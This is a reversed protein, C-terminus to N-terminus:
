KICIANPPSAVGQYKNLPASTFFYEYVGDRASDDALAELYFLEGIIMGFGGLFQSHCSDNDDLFPVAEFAINDSAVAAFKKEWVWRYTEECAKVGICEPNPTHQQCLQEGALKECAVTLGTRLMLIDGEQFIVNQDKAVRELEDVTINYRKFPNLEQGRQKAWWRAYDLLVARGAIGREAMHHVGLRDTADAGPEIDSFNVNNYFQKSKWHCCHRLGDWQSSSQTNFNQYIDDFMRDKMASCRVIQHDIESRNHFPPQPAELKWNLPFVAGRRICTQSAKLVREETLHNLTGLNDDVGWVGWATKPPYKPDIPLEDYSPFQTM